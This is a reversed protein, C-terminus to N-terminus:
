KWSVATMAITTGAITSCMAGPLWVAIKAASAVTTLM